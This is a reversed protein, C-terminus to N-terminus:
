ASYWGPFAHNLANIFDGLSDVVYVKAGAKRMKDHYLLQSERPKKGPSKFEVFFVVGKVIVMQDPANAKTFSQLKIAMSDPCRNKLWELSRKEIESEKISM